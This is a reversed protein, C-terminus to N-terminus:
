MAASGEARRRGALCANHIAQSPVLSCPAQDDYVMSSHMFQWELMCTHPDSPQLLLHWWRELAYGALKLVAGAALWVCLSLM